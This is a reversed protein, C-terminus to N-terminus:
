ALRALHRVGVPDLREDLKAGVYILPAPPALHLVIRRQKGNQSRPAHLAKFHKQLVPLIVNIRIHKPTVPSRLSAHSIGVCCLSLVYILM